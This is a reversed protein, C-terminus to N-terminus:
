PDLHEEDPQDPTSDAVGDPREDLPPDGASAAQRIPIVVVGGSGDGVVEVRAGYHSHISEPTLVDAARGEAAIRGGSLLLLRDTFQGAITLDHMASLVTLQRERRIRDILEMVEQQSGIDLATTPEDLLLVPSEQVLARAIVVRQLEGGSLTTVERNAFDELDLAALVEGVIALDQGSESTMVGHHPTRGLLVYDVVRMGEPLVPHQPVVAVLQAVARPHMEAVGVGGITISGSFDVGRGICRLITTKGAGNPGILGVWSGPEILLSVDDLITSGGLEVTVGDVAVASSM